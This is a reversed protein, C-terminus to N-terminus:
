NMKKESSPCSPGPPPDVPHMICRTGVLRIYIFDSTAHTCKHTQRHGSSAFFLSPPRLSFHRSFSLVCSRAGTSSRLISLKRHMQRPGSVWTRLTRAETSTRLGLTRKDLDQFGPGSLWIYCRPSTPVPPNHGVTM